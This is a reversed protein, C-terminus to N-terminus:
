QSIASYGSGGSDSGVSRADHSAHQQVEGHTVTENESRSNQSLHWATPVRPSADELIVSQLPPPHALDTPAINAPSQLKLVPYRGLEDCHSKHTPSGSLGRLPVHQPRYRRPVVPPGDHPSM